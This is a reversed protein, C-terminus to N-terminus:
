AGQVALSEKDILDALQLFSQGFIRPSRVIAYVDKAECLVDKLSSVIKKQRDKKAEEHPQFKIVTLAACSVDLALAPEISFRLM